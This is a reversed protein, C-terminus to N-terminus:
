QKGYECRRHSDVDRPSLRRRRLASSQRADTSSGDVGSVAAAPGFVSASCPTLACSSPLAGRGVSASCHHAAKSCCRSTTLVSNRRMAALSLSLSLPLARLARHIPCTRRSCEVSGSPARRQTVGTVLLRTSSAVSPSPARLRYRDSGRQLPPQM